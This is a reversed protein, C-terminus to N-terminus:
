SASRSYKISVFMSACGNKSCMHPGNSRIIAFLQFNLLNAAFGMYLFTMYDLAHPAVEPQMQMVSPIYPLMIYLGATIVLSISLMAGVAQTATKGAAELDREGFRRAVIIGSGVAFGSALTFVLFTVQDTTGIAAIAADGLRSAYFRDILSYVMNIMFSFAMPVAFNRLSSDIPDSLLNVSARKLM